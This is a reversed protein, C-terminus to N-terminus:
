AATQPAGASPEKQVAGAMLVYILHLLVVDEELSVSGGLRAAGGIRAYMTIMRVARQPVLANGGQPAHRRLRSETRAARPAPPSVAGAM